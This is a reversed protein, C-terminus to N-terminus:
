LLVPILGPDFTFIPPFIVGGGCGPLLPFIVCPDFNFPPTFGDGPPPPPTGPTGPPPPPPPAAETNFNLGVFGADDNNFDSSGTTADSDESRNALVLDASGGASTVVGAVQGAVGDGSSANASQGFSKRNDGDQANAALIGSLESTFVGPGVDTGSAVNLGVFNFASNNADAEGTDVSVGRSLNSADVSADGASVIGLVQGGVGDGSAANASQHGALRNDGAQANTAFSNLVDEAAGPGVTLGDSAANLGVFAATDNSADANGTNIDSDETRNAAVVDASGGAATVVGIVQGGVGDGSSANASQTNLYRNDGDQLNSAGFVGSVEAPALNTSDSDNLGVFQGAHNSGSADGTDVSTDTTRNTADVSADGASVVGTVQGAVADGSNSSGRQNSSARNDGAQANAASSDNVDQAVAMRALGSSGFVLGAVLALKLVKRM